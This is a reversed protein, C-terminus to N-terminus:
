VRSHTISDRVELSKCKQGQKRFYHLLHRHYSAIIYQKSHETVRSLPKKELSVRMNQMTNHNGKGEMPPQHWFQSQLCPTELWALIKLPFVQDYNFKILFNFSQQDTNKPTHKRTQRNKSFNCCYQFRGPFSKVVKHYRFAMNDDTKNVKTQIWLMYFLKQCITLAQYIQQISSFSFSHTLQYILSMEM